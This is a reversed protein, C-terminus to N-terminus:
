LPICSSLLICWLGEEEMCFFLDTIKTSCVKEICSSVYRFARFLLAFFCENRTMAFDPCLCVYKSKITICFLLILRWEMSYLMKYM